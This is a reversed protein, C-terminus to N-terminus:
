FTPSLPLPSPSIYDYEEVDSEFGPVPADPDVLPHIVNFLEPPCPYRLGFYGNIPVFNTGLSNADAISRAIIPKAFQLSNRLSATSNKSRDELPYNFISRDSQLMLSAQEYLSAIESLLHTRKYSHLQLTATGHLHENRQLWISHVTAWLDSILHKLSSAAQHKDHPHGMQQLYAHQLKQWNTHLHGHFIHDWGIRQQQHYLQLHLPPLYDPPEHDHYPDTHVLFAHRILKRLSPDIHWREYLKPLQALQQKLIVSRKQHPCHLIHHDDEVPEDCSPCDPPHHPNIRNQRYGLPLLHNTWKTVFLRHKFDLSILTTRFLEWDIM